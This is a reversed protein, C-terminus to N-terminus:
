GAVPLLQSHPRVTLKPKPGDTFVRIDYSPTWSAAHVLYSLTLRAEGAETGEVLISVM